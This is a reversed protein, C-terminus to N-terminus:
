TYIVVHTMLQAIYVCRLGLIGRPTMVIFHFPQKQCIELILTQIQPKGKNYDM